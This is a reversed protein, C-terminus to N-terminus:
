YFICINSYFDFFCAVPSLISILILCNGMDSVHMICM